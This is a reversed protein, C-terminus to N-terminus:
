GALEELRRELGAARETAAAARERERSVVEAPAREAFRLDDLRSRARGLDEEAVALERRLREREREVDVLGELPLYVEAGAVVAALAQRPKRVEGPPVIELPAAAALAGVYGAMLRTAAYSADSGAMIVARAQRSPPIKIEARLNRIARVEDMLLAMQAEAADDLWEAHEQPWPAVMISPGRHPLAQWLEETIFPAFPHLLRLMAEFVRWLTARAAGATEADLRGYLRPKALEIYWDCFEGWAFDYITRAGEGLDFGDLHREVAARTREFRSLIWRDATGAFGSAWATFQSDEPPTFDGLNALTFRAANWLKNCFNRSGELREWRFRM